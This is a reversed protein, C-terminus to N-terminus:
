RDRSNRRLSEFASDLGTPEALDAVSATRCSRAINDTAPWNASRGIDAHPQSPACSWLCQSVRSDRVYQWRHVFSQLDVQRSPTDTTKTRFTASLFPHDWAAHSQLTRHFVPSHWSMKPNPGNGAIAWSFLPPSLSLPLHPSRRTEWEGTRGRETRRSRRTLRDRKPTGSGRWLFM